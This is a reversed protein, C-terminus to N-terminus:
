PCDVIAGCERDRNSRLEMARQYLLVDEEHFTEIRQRLAPTPPTAAAGRMKERHQVLRSGLFRLAFANLDEEFHEMVGVFAFRELPFNWLFAAYVNRLEEATCFDELTWKEEVVRRHLPASTSPRYSAIWHHYHSILRGVPERMWTVYRTHRVDDLARYKIPLFHGHVCAIDDLRNTAFENGRELAHQIRESSSEHLPYDGYDRKLRPGFHSQLARLFSSGATKPLHVSIIIPNNTM